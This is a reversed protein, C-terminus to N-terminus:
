DSNTEHQEKVLKAAQKIARYADIADRVYQSTAPLQDVYLILTVPKSPRANRPRGRPKALEPMPRM